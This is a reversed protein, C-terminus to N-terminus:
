VVEQVPLSWYFRSRTGRRPLLGSASMGGDCPATMTVEAAYGALTKIDTKGPLEYMPAWTVANWVALHDGASAILIDGRPSFAFPAGLGELRTEEKWNGTDWRRISGDSHEALLHRGDPSFRTVPEAVDILTKLLIGEPLSRVFINPPDISAVLRGDPSIALGGFAGRYRGLIAEHDSRSRGWLYRWEFGRLDEQDPQPRHRDLLMRAQGVDSQEVALLARGMDATYLARRLSEATQQAKGANSEALLQSTEAKKLQTAENIRADRERLSSGTSFALALLVIIGVVM